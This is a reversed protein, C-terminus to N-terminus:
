RRPDQIYLRSARRRATGRPLSRSAVQDHIARTFISSNVRLRRPHSYYLYTLEIVGVVLFFLLLFLLFFPLLDFYLPCSVM